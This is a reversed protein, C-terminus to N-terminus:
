RGRRSEGTTATGTSARVVLKGCRQQCPKPICPRSDTYAMQTHLQSKQMFHSGRVWFRTMLPEWLLSRPLYGYCDQTSFGNREREVHLTGFTGSPRRPCRSKRSSRLGLEGELGEKHSFRVAGEDKVVCIFCQHFRLNRQLYSDSIIISRCRYIHLDVHSDIQM